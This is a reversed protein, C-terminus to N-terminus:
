PRMEEPRRPRPEPDLMELTPMVVKKGDKTSTVTRETSASSGATSSPVDGEGAMGAEM